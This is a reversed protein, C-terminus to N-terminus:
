GEISYTREGAESKASIVKLGQKKRLTGSLFGRVSHAQWGTAEMLEKATAGGPRKLLDLVASAKSGERSEKAKAARKAKPTGKPAKKSAKAQKGAKTKKPAVPAGPRSRNAKKTAKPQESTTEPGTVIEENTGANM